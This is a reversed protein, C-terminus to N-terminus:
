CPGLLKEGCWCARKSGGETAGLKWSLEVSLRGSVIALSRGLKQCYGGSGAGSCGWGSCKQNKDGREAEPAERDESLNGPSGASCLTQFRLASRQLVGWHAVKEPPWRRVLWFM